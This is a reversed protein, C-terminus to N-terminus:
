GIVSQSGTTCGGDRDARMEEDERLAFRATNRNNELPVLIRPCMVLEVRHPTQFLLWGDLTAILTAVFFALDSLSLPNVLAGM